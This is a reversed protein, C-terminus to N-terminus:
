PTSSRRPARQIRQASARLAGRAQDGGGSWAAVYGFSYGDSDIGLRSRVVFAVSEAELEAVPRPTAAYGDAHLIAHVLEDALTNARQAPSLGRRARILRLRPSCEGNTEGPLDADEVRYGRAAAVAVLREFVGGPDEGALRTCVEPLPEGETQEVDWVWAVTFTAVRAAPSVEDTTADGAEEADGRRARRLIPALIALGREGRRVQRGLKQWTRYGAVRTCGPRQLEILLVNGFSYRHFRAQARLWETWRESSALTAIDEELRALVEDRTSRGAPSPAAAAAGELLDARM